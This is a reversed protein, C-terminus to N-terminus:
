AAYKVTCGYPRTVSHQVPQNHLVALIAERAYPEARAMDDIRTSAVSDAGGMYALKGEPTIVFIHPTTEAGYLHGLTGKPDLLVHTPEAHRTATLENARAGDAYGQEGPASSIVTLWVAGQGTADRQLQQMAGSRYWKGVYPCGDNTWELVVTKGRLDALKVTQGHTDTAVFDPAAQGIAPAALARKPLGAAAPVALMSTLALWTRRTLTM